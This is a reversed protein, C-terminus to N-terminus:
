RPKKGHSHLRNGSNAGFLKELVERGLEQKPQFAASGAYAYLSALLQRAAPEKTIEPLELGCVLLRGKGVRSEFVVGLKHNRQFNDIVQLIPRYAGPTEDLIFLNSHQM